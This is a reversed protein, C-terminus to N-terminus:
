CFSHWIGKHHQIIGNSNGRYLAIWISCNGSGFVIYKCQSMIYTIALYKKAFEHNNSKDILDVSTKPDHIQRIEDTFIVWNTLRESMYKLFESDDSQLLFRINPNSARIKEAQILYDEYKPLDVETVKDNGRFFLVCTNAFDIDYKATIEDRIGCVEDSITFYKNIFPTIGSFNLKNYLSFQYKHIYDVHGTYPIANDLQKFFVHTIDGTHKPPKYWAFQASSDVHHPIHKYKNFSEIIYHLRVSCCSFFGANHKVILTKKGEILQISTKSQKKM